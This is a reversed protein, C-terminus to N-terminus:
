PLANVVDVLGDTDIDILADADDFAIEQGAAITASQIAYAWGTDTATM